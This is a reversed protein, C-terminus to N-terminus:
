FARRDEPLELGCYVCHSPAPGYGQNLRNCGVCTLLYPVLPKAAAGGAIGGVLGENLEEETWTM